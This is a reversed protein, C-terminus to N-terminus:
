IALGLGAKLQTIGVGSVSVTSAGVFVREIGTNSLKWGLDGELVLQAGDGEAGWTEMGAGGDLCLRGLQLELQPVVEGALFTGGTTRSKLPFAGLSGTLFLPGLLWVQPSWALEGSQSAGGTTESVFIAGARFKLLRFKPPEKEESESGLRAALKSPAREETFASSVDANALRTLEPQSGGISKLYAKQDFARPQGVETADADVYSGERVLTGGGTVVTQEDPAVAVAGRLTHLEAQDVEPTFDYVFDTGRVGMTAVRTRILFKPTRRLGSPHEEKTVAGRVEGRHLDSFQVGALPEYVKLETSRAVLLKSGDSFALKASTSSDTIVVDGESLAAGAEVRRDGKEDRVTVTTGGSVAELLIGGAFAPASAAFALAFLGIRM